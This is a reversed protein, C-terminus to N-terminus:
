LQLSESGVRHHGSHDTAPPSEVGTSHSGPPYGGPVAATTSAHQPPVCLESVAPVADAAPWMVRGTVCGCAQVQCEPCSYHVPASPEEHSNNFM